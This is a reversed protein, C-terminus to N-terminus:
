LPSSPSNISIRVAITVSLTITTPRVLECHTGQLSSEMDASQLRSISPSVGEEVADGDVRM